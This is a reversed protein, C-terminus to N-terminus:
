FANMGANPEGYGTSGNTFAGLLYNSGVPWNGYCEPEWYFVGLCGNAKAAAILATLYSKCDTPDSELYGAECVMTPVGYTSTMTKMTTTVDTVQTQWSLGSWYPYSSMGIVDFKGGASKLNSFFWTFDSTNEGSSLHIIVQASPFVTKVANYGANILGALNPFSNDGSGGVEGIPFLMGSNIENGVQVWSVTGGGNKIATLVSSTESAVASEMQSLNYNKWAAPPTQSSGSAWTDSYHFYIMVSQGLAHAALAKTVTDAQNCWGGTPNLWVRLRIANIGVSQLVTLCPEAVDKQTYFKYESQSVMQTYWSADAGDAFAWIRAPCVALLFLCAFSIKAVLTKSTKM